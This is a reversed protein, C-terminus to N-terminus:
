TSALYLARQVKSAERKAINALQIEYADEVDMGPYTVTLPDIPVRDAEARELAAAAEKRQEDSLM